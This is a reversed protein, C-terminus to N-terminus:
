PISPREGLTVQLRMEEGGRIIVLEIRADVSTRVVQAILAERSLVPAGDFKIIVDGPLVGATGAPSALGEGAVIGGVYAGQTSSLGLDRAREESLNDLELGLWGRRVRGNSKLRTVVDRAIQSPIAFSIGSYTQGVIATNIGVIRGHVDVLPGGSNGPNVAADTQMLDQFQTGARGARHKASLIGFTVSRELGFPSGLAWVMAGVELEDSDGWEAPFLDRSDIRLVALDTLSDLGVIKAPVHRGDSLAVDIERAGEVVHRNTVVYGDADVIVGSGQGQAERFRRAPLASDNPASENSVVNIHVVSPGVRKSVLESATSLGLAPSSALQLTAIEVEARQRGRARAYEYQEIFYPGICMSVLMLGLITMLWTLKYLSLKNQREAVGVDVYVAEAHFPPPYPLQLATRSPEAHPSSGDEPTGVPIPADM